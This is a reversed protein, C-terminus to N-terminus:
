TPELVEPMLRPEVGGMWDPVYVTTALKPPLM